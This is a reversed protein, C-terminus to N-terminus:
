GQNWERGYRAVGAAVSDPQQNTLWTVNLGGFADAVGRSTNFDAPLWSMGPLQRHTTSEIAVSM